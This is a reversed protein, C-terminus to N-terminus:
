GIRWDEGDSYVPVINSGGGAVISAYTTATADTVMGRTGINTDSSPLQAVTCADLTLRLSRAVLQQTQMVLTDLAEEVSSARFGQDELATGQVYDLARQVVLYTGAALASGTVPYHVSGGAPDEVGTITFDTTITRETWVGSASITFVNVAVTTGDAQYPVEFNYAFDKNSGNGQTTISATENSITM